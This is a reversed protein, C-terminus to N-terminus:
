QLRIQAHQQSEKGYFAINVDRSTRYLAATGSPQLSNKWTSEATTLLAATAFWPFVYDFVGRLYISYSNQSVLFYNQSEAEIRGLANWEEQRLMVPDGIERYRMIILNVNNTQTAGTTNFVSISNEGWHVRPVVCRITTWLGTGVDQYRHYMTIVENFIRPNPKRM